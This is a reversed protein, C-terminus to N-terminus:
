YNTISAVDQIPVLLIEHHNPISSLKTVYLYDKTHLLLRYDQNDEPPKKFHVALLQSEQPSSDRRSLSAADIFPFYICILIVGLFGFGISSLNWSLYRRREHAFLVLFTLITLGTGVNLLTRGALAGSYALALCTLMIIYLPMYVFFGYEELVRSMLERPKALNMLRESAIALSAAICLPFIGFYILMNRPIENAMWAAGFHDFYVFEKIWGIGYALAAVGAIELAIAGAKEIGKRFLPLEDTM